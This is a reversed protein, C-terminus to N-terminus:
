LIGDRKLDAVFEDHSVVPEERREAIAALDDLDAVIKEYLAIPVVVATRAGHSDKFLDRFNDGWGQTISDGFFVISGHQKKQRKQFQTRRANWLQVFAPETRLPGVGPTDDGFATAPKAAPPASTTATQAVAFPAPVLALALLVISKRHLQIM